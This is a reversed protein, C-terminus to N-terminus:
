LIKITKPPYFHLTVFLTCRGPGSQLLYNPHSNDSYPPLAPMLTGLLQSEKM